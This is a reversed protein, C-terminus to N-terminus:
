PEELTTSVVMLASIYNRNETRAVLVFKPSHKKLFLHGPTSRFGHLRYLLLEKGIALKRHSVKPLSRPVHSSICKSKNRLNHLGMYVSVDM